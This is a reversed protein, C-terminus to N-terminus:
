RILADILDPTFQRRAGPNQFILESNVADRAVPIKDRVQSVTSNPSLKQDTPLKNNLRMINRESNVASILGGKFEYYNSFSNTDCIGNITGIRRLEARTLQGTVRKLVEARPKTNFDRKIDPYYITFQYAEILYRLAAVNGSVDDAQAGTACIKLLRPRTNAVSDLTADYEKIIL